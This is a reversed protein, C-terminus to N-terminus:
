TVKKERRVATEHIDKIELNQVSKTSGTDPRVGIQGVLETRPRGVVLALELVIYM